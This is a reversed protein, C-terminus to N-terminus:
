EDTPAETAYLESPDKQVPAVTQWEGNQWRKYFCAHRGTHCAIGGYQEVELLVTDGDCDLRLALVRQRNGSSEGKRWLKGRSRSYYCAYGTAATEKLADANMWAMMLVVGSGTEQAIAPVLGNQTFKVAADIQITLQKESM